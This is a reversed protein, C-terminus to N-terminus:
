PRQGTWEWHWPEFVYNVFGFRAANATLWRYTATRTQYLRNADDSSDVMFGPGAGIVLDVALGTRHASCQARVLGNCNGEADCRAADDAPARYGSFLTLRNPEGDDDPVARRAAAILRRFAALTSARLIVVKGGFTEEPGAAVLLSPDPPEPCVGQGRLAVYPRRDQWGKKMAEFTAPDVRGTAPLGHGSQWRALAAAFGPTDPPCAAGIEEAIRPQYIDWGQEPRGFPSWALDHASRDNDEAADRLARPAACNQKELHHARAAAPSPALAAALWMLLATCSLCAARL